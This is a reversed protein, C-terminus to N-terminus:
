PLQILHKLLFIMCRNSPSFDQLLTMINNISLGDKADISRLHTLNVKLESRLQTPRFDAIDDGLSDDDEQIMM